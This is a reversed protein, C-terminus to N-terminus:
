VRPAPRLPLGTRSGVSLGRMDWLVFGRALTLAVILLAPLRRRLRGRAGRVSERSVNERSGLRCWAEPSGTRLLCPWRPVTDGARGLFVTRTGCLRGRAEPARAVGGRVPDCLGRMLGAGRVRRGDQM